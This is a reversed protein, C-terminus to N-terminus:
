NAHRNGEHPKILLIEMGINSRRHILDFSFDSITAREFDRSNMGGIIEHFYGKMYPELDAASCEKYKISCGSGEYLRLVEEVRILSM